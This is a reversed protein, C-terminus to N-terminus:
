LIIKLPEYNQYVWYACYCMSEEAIKVVYEIDSSIDFDNEHESSSPDSNTSNNGQGSKNCCTLFLAACVLILLKSKM